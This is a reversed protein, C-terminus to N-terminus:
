DSFKNPDSNLTMDNEQNYHKCQIKYRILNMSKTKSMDSDTYFRKIQFGLCCKTLILGIKNFPYFTLTLTVITKLVHLLNKNEVQLIRYSTTLTFTQRM